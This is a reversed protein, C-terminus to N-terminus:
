PHLHLREAIGRGADQDSSQLRAERGTPTSDPAMALTASRIPHSSRVTDTRRDIIFSALLEDLNLKKFTMPEELAAHMAAAVWLRVSFNVEAQVNRRIATAVRIADTEMRPSWSLVETLKRHGIPTWAHELLGSTLCVIDGKFASSDGVIRPYTSSWAGPPDLGMLRLVEGCLAMRLMPTPYRGPSPLKIQAQGIESPAGAIEAALGSVFATGTALVGIIDAFIEDSWARWVIKREEADTGKLDLGSIVEIAEAAFKLDEAIVHGAEHGILVVESLRNVVSWPVGIVPVPLRRVEEAVQELDKSDLGPPHLAKTRAQAFPARDATLFVLPPEKLQLENVTGADRAAVLFPEYCSWALDDAVGLFNVYAATDRQALKDRFFDWLLHVTGMARRLEPLDAVTGEFPPVSNGDLPTGELASSLASSIQLKLRSVQSQHLPLDGNKSARKEWLELDAELGARQARLGEIASDYLLV